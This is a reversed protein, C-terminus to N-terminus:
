RRLTIDRFFAEPDSIQGLKVRVGNLINAMPLSAWRAEYGTRFQIPTSMLTQDKDFPVTRGMVLPSIDRLGFWEMIIQASAQLFEHVISGVLMSEGRDKSTCEIIMDTEAFAHYSKFGTHLEVPEQDQYGVVGKAFVSQDRDVWIGPRANRAEMHENFGSEIYIQTTKLDPNWLWKMVPDSPTTTTFRERLIAVFLGILTLPASLNIYAHQGEVPIPDSM